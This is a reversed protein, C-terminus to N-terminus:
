KQYNCLQFHMDNQRKEILLQLTPKVELQEHLKRQVEIQMQLTENIHLGRSHLIWDDTHIKVHTTIHYVCLM